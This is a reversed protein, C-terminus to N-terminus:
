SKTDLVHSARYIIAISKSLENSIYTIHDKWTIQHDICAGLFRLSHVKQLNVGDISINNEISKHDLFFIFITKSINLALKSLAVM